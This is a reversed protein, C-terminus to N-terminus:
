DILDDIETPWYLDGDYIVPGDHATMYKTLQTSTLSYLRDTDGLHYADSKDLSGQSRVGKIWPAASSVVMEFSDPGDDFLYVAPAVISDNQTLVHTGDGVVAYDKPMLIQGRAYELAREICFGNMMLRAFATGVQVADDNTVSEFTVGGAVSGKRILQEGEPYSGCANLFFTQANSERLTSASFYGNVCKLGNEDRHGIFHVLDNRAEFIETLHATSVNEHLTLDINLEEARREYQEVIEDHEDRMDPRDEDTLNLSMRNTDNVIAVVSLKSGPRELYKRRNEYAEPLAKFV